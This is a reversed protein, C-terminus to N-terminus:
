VVAKRIGTLSSLQKERLVTNAAKTEATMQSLRDRYVGLSLAEFGLKNDVSWSTPPSWEIQCVERTKTYVAKYM